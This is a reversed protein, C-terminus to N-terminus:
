ARIEALWAHKAAVRSALDGVRRERASAADDRDVAEGRRKGREVLDHFLALAGCMDLHPVAVVVVDMGVALLDRVVITKLLELKAPAITAAVRRLGTGCAVRDRDVPIADSGHSAIRAGAVM